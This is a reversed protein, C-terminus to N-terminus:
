GDRSPGRRDRRRQRASRRSEDDSTGRVMTLWVWFLGVILGVGIIAAIVREDGQLSPTSEYREGPAGAILWVGICVPAWRVSPGVGARFM